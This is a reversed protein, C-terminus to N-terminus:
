KIKSYFPTASNKSFILPQANPNQPQKQKQSFNSSYSFFKLGCFEKVEHNLCAIKLFDNKVEEVWKIRKAWSIKKSFLISQKIASKQQSFFRLNILFFETWM